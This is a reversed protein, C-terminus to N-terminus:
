PLQGVRRIENLTLVEARRWDQVHHGHECHRDNEWLFYARERTMRFQGSEMLVQAAKVFIHGFARQRREDFERIAGHAVADRLRVALRLTRIANERGPPDVCEVLRQLVGENM